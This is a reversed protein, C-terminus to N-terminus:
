LIIYVSHQKNQDQHNGWSLGFLINFSVRHRRGLAHLVGVERGHQGGDLLCEPDLGLLRGVEHGAVLDRLDEEEEEQRERQLHLLPRQPAGDPHHATIPPYSAVISPESQHLRDGRQPQEHHRQRVEQRTVAVEGGEVGRVGREAARLLVGLDAVYTFIIVKFYRSYIGFEM